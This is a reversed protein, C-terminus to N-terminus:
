RRMLEFVNHPLLDSTVSYEGTNTSFMIITGGNAYDEICYVSSKRIMHRVMDETRVCIFESAEINFRKTQEMDVRIIGTEIEKGIEPFDPIMFYTGNWLRLLGTKDNYTSIEYDHFLYLFSNEKFVVYMKM